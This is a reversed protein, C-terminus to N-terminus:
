EETCLLTGQPDYWCIGDTIVYDKGSRIREVYDQVSVLKTKFAVGAGVPAIQHLDTGATLPLGHEKAYTIARENYKPNYHQSSVISSHQANVGEVGDVWEPYLRVERIYAAERFPHAHIVMGGAEHILRYQEEVSITKLEPHALMWAKDPGYILFETARYGSEWAMFVQLGIEDGVAKAGEYGSCFEDVWEEWLLDRSPRTNGGWHHDTIFVGTYGFAKAARAMESGPAKGCASGEATHMHTEYLYPYEERINM